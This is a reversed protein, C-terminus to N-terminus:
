KNSNTGNSNEEQKNEKTTSKKPTEDCIPKKTATIKAPLENRRMMKPHVVVGPFEKIEGPKITVGYFCLEKHSKNVYISM